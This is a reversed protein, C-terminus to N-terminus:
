RPEEGDTSYGIVSRKNNLLLSTRRQQAILSQYNIIVLRIGEITIKMLITKHLIPCVELRLKFRDQSEKNDYTQTPVKLPPSSKNSLPSSSKQEFDKPDIVNVKHNPGWLFSSIVFNIISPRGHFLAPWLLCHIFTTLVSRSFRLRDLLLDFHLFVIQGIYNLYSM